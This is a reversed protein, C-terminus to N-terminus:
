LRKSTVDIFIGLPQHQIGAGNLGLAAGAAELFRKTEGVIVMRMPLFLFMYVPIFIIFMGYWGTAVWYYQFPIAIYAWFLVRRDARRTPIISLYEKLALFSILGFFILSVTKSLVMALSFVTIMVWWSNIRQQLETYDSAPNARKLFYAIASAIVLLFYLGGLSWLVTVNTMSFM